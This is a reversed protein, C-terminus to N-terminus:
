RSDHGVALRRDGLSHHNRDLWTDVLRPCAAKTPLVVGHDAGLTCTLQRGAVVPEVSLGDASIIILREVSQGTRPMHISPVCAHLRSEHLVCGFSALGINAPRDTDRPTREPRRRNLM